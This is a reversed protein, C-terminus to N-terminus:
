PISPTPTPYLKKSNYYGDALRQLQVLSLKTGMGDEGRMLNDDYNGSIIGHKIGTKDEEEPHNVDLIHGVEHALTRNVLATNEIIVSARLYPTREQSGGRGWYRVEQVYYATLYIGVNDGRNYQYLTGGESLPDLELDGGLVQRTQADDMSKVTGRVIQIRPPDKEGPKLAIPQSFIQNAENIRQDVDNCTTVNSGALLTFNVVLSLTSPQQKSNPTPTPMETCVTKLVDEKVKEEVSCGILM